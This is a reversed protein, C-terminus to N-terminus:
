EGEETVLPEPPAGEEPELQIGRVSGIAEIWDVAGESLQVTIEDALLYSVGWTRRDSTEPDVGEPPARYWSKANGMATLRDLLYAPEEEAAVDGAAVTDAGPPQAGATVVVSDPAGGDATTGVAPAPVFTAVIVDAEMWDEVTLAESPDDSGVATTDVTAPANGRTELRARGSATLSQLVEGPSLIDVSDATVYVEEAVVYPRSRGPDLGEDARRVTVLRQIQENEVQLQIEDGVVEMEPTRITGGGLLEVARLQDNPLLLHIEPAEM